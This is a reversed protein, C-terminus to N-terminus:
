FYNHWNSIYFNRQYGIRIVKQISNMKANLEYILQSVEISILATQSSNNWINKLEQDLM